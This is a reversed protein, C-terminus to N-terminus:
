NLRASPGSVNTNRSLCCTTTYSTTLRDGPKGGKAVICIARKRALVPVVDLIVTSGSSLSVFPSDISIYGINLADLYPLSSCGTGSDDHAM